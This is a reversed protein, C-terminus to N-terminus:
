WVHPDHSYHSMYQEAARTFPGGADNGFEGGISVDEHDGVVVLPTPNSSDTIGTPEALGELEAVCSWGGFHKVGFGTYM